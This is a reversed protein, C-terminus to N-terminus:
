GRRCAQGRPGRHGRTGELGWPYRRDLLVTYDDFRTTTQSNVLFGRFSGQCNSCCDHSSLEKYKKGMREIETKKDIPDDQLICLADIWLYRIGLARTVEIADQSSQPLHEIPLRETWAELVTTTLLMFKQAEGWCYSLTAYDATENKTRIHLCSARSCVKSGFRHSKNSAFIKETFSLGQPNELM